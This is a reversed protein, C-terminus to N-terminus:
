EGAMKKALEGVLAVLLMEVLQLSRQQLAADVQQLAQLFV